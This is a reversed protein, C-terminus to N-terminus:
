TLLNTRNGKNSFEYLSGNLVERRIQESEVLRSSAKAEQVLLAAFARARHLSTFWPFSDPNLQQSLTLTQIYETLTVGKFPNKNLVIGENVLIATYKRGDVFTNAVLM